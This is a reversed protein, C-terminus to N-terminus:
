DEVYSVDGNDACDECVSIEAGDRNDIRAFVEATRCGRLECTLMDAEAEIETILDAVIAAFKANIVLQALPATQDAFRIRAQRAITTTM